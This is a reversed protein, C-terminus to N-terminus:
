ATTGPDAVLLVKQMLVLELWQGSKYGVQAMRGVEEFGCAAHFVQAEPNAGSIGAVLVRVGAHVAVEELRRMLARGLGRRRANATLHISLEKTHAYGPGDRFTDYTAFGVVQDDLLAVQYAAWRLAIDAAIETEGCEATTFTTLTDRIAANTIDRIAIVDAMRAQRFNANGQTM